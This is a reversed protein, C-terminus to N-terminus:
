LKRLTSLLAARLPIKKSEGCRHATECMIKALSAQLSGAPLTLGHLFGSVRRLLCRRSTIHQDNAAARAARRDRRQQGLASAIDNQNFFGAVRSEMNALRQQREVHRQELPKAYGVLDAHDAHRFVAGFENRWPM